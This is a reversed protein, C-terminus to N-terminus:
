PSAKINLIVSSHDSNLDLSNNITCYLNSLIKAVFIDLIDPKKKLSTPWYTPEPPSLIKYKNINTFNYLLNGRLNAARCGWSQHKVNYDGGVIFNNSITGFYNNLDNNTLNHRLPCYVAAIVFPINNLSMKIACAQIYNHCFNTLSHFKLNSKIILAVGDHATGGPHNSRLLSYGPISIYSHKTFHTETILAIDIRKDYLVTQVENIHNKLGNANFLIISLSQNTYSNNNM